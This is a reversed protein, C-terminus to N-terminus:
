LLATTKGTDSHGRLLTIHGIPVGPVSLCNQFAPSLPIWEQNKMKISTSSLNKAQKFNDLNFTGKVASSISENLSAKSTKAM